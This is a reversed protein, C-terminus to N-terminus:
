TYVIDKGLQFQKLRIIIPQTTSNGASQDKMIPLLIFIDKLYHTLYIRGLIHIPIIVIRYLDFTIRTIINHIIIYLHSVCQRRTDFHM